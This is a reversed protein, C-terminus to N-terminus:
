SGYTHLKSLLERLLPISPSEPRKARLHHFLHIAHDLTESTTSGNDNHYRNTFAILNPLVEDVTDSNLENNILPSLALWAQPLLQSRLEDDFSSRFSCKIDYGEVIELLALLYVPLNSAISKAHLLKLLSDSVKQLFDTVWTFRYYLTFSFIIQLCCLLQGTDDDFRVSPILDCLHSSIAAVVTPESTTLAHRMRRVLQLASHRVHEAKHEMGRIIEDIFLSSTAWQEVNRSQSLMFFADAVAEDDRLNYHHQLFDVTSEPGVMVFRVPHGHYTPNWRNQKHYRDLPFVSLVVGLRLVARARNLTEARSEADTAQQVRDMCSTYITMVSDVKDCLCAKSDCTDFNPYIQCKELFPALSCLLTEQQVATADVVSASQQLFKRMFLDALSNNVVGVLDKRNVRMGLMIAVSLCCDVLIHHPPSPSGLWRIIETVALRKIELSCRPHALLHPLLHLTWSRDSQSIPLLGAERFLCGGLLTNAMSKFLAASTGESFRALCEFGELLTRNYDRHAMSVDSASDSLYLRNCFLHLLAKGFVLARNQALPALRLGTGGPASVFCGKFANGLQVYIESVDVEVPWEIDPVMKAGTLLVEQDTSIELLWRVAPAEYEHIKLELKSEPSPSSIEAKEPDPVRGKGRAIRSWCSQVPDRCLAKMIQALLAMPQWLLKIVNTLPTQFPCNQSFASALAIFAYFSLGLATAGIVVAAITAQQTWVYASLAIGFLLLSIQLLVPLVGLM